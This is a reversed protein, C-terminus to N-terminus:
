IKNRSFLILDLQPIKEVGLQRLMTVLQGRHYTSHNFVHMMIQWVPQKFYEKKSNYYQIVHEIAVDTANNTWEVWLRNQQQYQLTLELMNGKFTESPVVVREQLKVRQWWASEANWMHLLTDFLNSFSSVLPQHQKGEDLTNILEVLRQNAWQNYAAYQSLLEKM